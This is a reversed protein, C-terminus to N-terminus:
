QLWKSWFPHLFNGLVLCLHSLHLCKPVQNRKCTDPAGWSEVTQAISLELRIIRLRGIFRSCAHVIRRVLHPGSWVLLKNSISKSQMHIHQIKCWCILVISGLYCFWVKPICVLDCQSWWWNGPKLRIFYRSCPVPVLLMVKSQKPGKLTKGSICANWRAHM